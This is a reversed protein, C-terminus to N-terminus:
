IASHPEGHVSKTRVYSSASTAMERGDFVNAFTVTIIYGTDPNLDRIGTKFPKGGNDSCKFDQGGVGQVTGYCLDLNGNKTKPAYVEIEVARPGVAHSRVVFHGPAFSATRVVAFAPPSSTVRSGCNATAAVQACYSTNVTTEFEIMEASTNFEKCGSEDADANCSDYGSCIKGTYGAVTGSVAAPPDWALKSRSPTGSVITINTPPDPDPCEGSKSASPRSHMWIGIAVVTVM